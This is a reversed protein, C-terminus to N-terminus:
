SADPVQAVLCETSGYRIIKYNNQIVTLTSTKGLYPQAAARRSAIAARNHERMQIM